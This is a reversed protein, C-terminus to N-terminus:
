NNEKKGTKGRRQKRKEGRGRHTRDWECLLTVLGQGGRQRVCGEGARRDEGIPICWSVGLEVPSSTYECVREARVSMCTFPSALPVHAYM